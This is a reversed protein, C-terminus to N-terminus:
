IKVPMILHLYDPDLTDKFVGASSPTNFGISIEEGKVSQIFDELYRYNFSIEFDENSKKEVKADVKTDQSGAQGSEATVKISDKLTKIKVVNASERAFVSALKVARLFEEKDVAINISTEKPIIKEFDPYEGEILRSSIISDGLGFLVQKEKDNLELFINDVNFVGRGVEGLVGKPIVISKEKAKLRELTLQKKSLRFGDTAVLTLKGSDLIFLVGTLVPRTEDVSTAFLVKGLSEAFQTREFAFSNKDDLSNPIKPFDTPDIGLVNSSFGSTSIKLHEKESNLEITEKPLNSVVDMILKAPVSTEGEKEIKAGIQVSASIELNTSSIFLKNKRASLLINGLIPLQARTSSFRCTINVAREINEQLVQLKM